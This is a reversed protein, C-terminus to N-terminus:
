NLFCYIVPNVKFYNLVDDGTEFTKIKPCDNPNDCGIEGVGHFQTIILNENAYSFRILNNIIM